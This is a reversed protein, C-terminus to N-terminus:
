IKEGSDIYAQVRKTGYCNRTVSDRERKLIETCKEAIEKNYKKYDNSDQEVKEIAEELFEVELKKDYISPKFILVLTIISVILIAIKNSLYKKDKLLERNDIASICGFVM